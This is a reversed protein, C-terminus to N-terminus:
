ARGAQAFAAIGADIWATAAVVDPDREYRIEKALPPHALASGLLPHSISPTPLALERRVRLIALVESPFLEHNGWAFEDFADANIRRCHYDCVEIMAAALANANEDSWHDFLSKYPGLPAIWPRDCDVHTGRWRGYLAAMAPALPTELWVAADRSEGEGMSAIMSSGCRDAVADAGLAIADALCLAAQTLRLGTVTEQRRMALESWVRVSLGAAEVSGRLLNWGGADGDLVSVAGTM